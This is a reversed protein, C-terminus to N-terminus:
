FEWQHSPSKNTEQCFYKLNRLTDPLLLSVCRLHSPAVSGPLEPSNWQVRGTRKVPFGAFSPPTGWFPLPLATGSSDASADPGWGRQRHCGRSSCTHGWALSANGPPPVVPFAAPWNCSQAGAWVDPALLRIRACKFILKFTLTEKPFREVPSCHYSISPYRTLPVRQQRLLSFAETRATSRSRPPSRRTPHRSRWGSLGGVGAHPLGPGAQAGLM